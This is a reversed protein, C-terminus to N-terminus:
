ELHAKIVFSIIIPLVLIIISLIGLLLFLFGLFNMGLNIAIVVKGLVVLLPLVLPMTILIGLISGKTLSLANGFSFVNLFIYTTIMLIPILQIALDASSTIGFGYLAGLLSIPLGILLWYVFIKITIVGSLSNHKIAMQELTGDNFDELFIDETALMMVLLTAIWLVSLFSQDIDKNLMEVTLPFATMILVFVLIPGLWGRSKKRLKLLEFKLLKM